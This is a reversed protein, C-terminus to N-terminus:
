ESLEASVVKRPKDTACIANAIALRQEFTSSANAQATYNNYKCRVLFTVIEPDNVKKAEVKSVEKTNAQIFLSLSLAGILFLKKM